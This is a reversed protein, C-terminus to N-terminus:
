GMRHWRISNGFSLKVPLPFNTDRLTMTLTGQSISTVLLKLSCGALSGQTYHFTLIRNAYNYTGSSLGGRVETALFVKDKLVFEAGTNSQWRGFLWGLKRQRVEEEQEERLLKDRAMRELEEGEWRERDASQAATDRREADYARRKRANGLVAWAENVLEMLGPDGGRDPHHQRAQRRYALRIAALDATSSVKLIDYYDPKM